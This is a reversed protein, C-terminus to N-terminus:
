EVQSLSSVQRGSGPSLESYSFVVVHQNPFVAVCDGRETPYM